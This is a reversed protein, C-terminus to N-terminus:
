PERTEGGKKTASIPGKRLGMKAKFLKTTISDVERQEAKNREVKPLNLMAAIVLIIESDTFDVSPM